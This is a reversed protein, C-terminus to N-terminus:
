MGRLWEDRPLPCSEWQGITSGQLRLSIHLHEICMLFSGPISTDNTIFTCPPSNILLTGQRTSINQQSIIHLYSMFDGLRFCSQNGPKSQCWYRDIINTVKEYRYYRRWCLWISIESIYKLENHGLSVMHHCLFPDFQSLYHNAAQYCWAM